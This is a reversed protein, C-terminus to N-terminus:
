PQSMEKFVKAAFTLGIDKVETWAAPGYKRFFAGLQDAPQPVFPAGLFAAEAAEHAALKETDPAETENIRLAVTELARTTWPFPKGCGRCYRPRPKMLPGHWRTGGRTEDPGVVRHGLITTGCSPCVSLTKSGCEECRANRQQVGPPLCECTLDGRECYEASGYYDGEQGM